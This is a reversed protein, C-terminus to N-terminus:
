TAVPLSREAEAAIPGAGLPSGRRARIFDGQAVAGSRPNRGTRRWARGRVAAFRPRHGAPAAGQGPAVPLTRKARLRGTRRRTRGHATRSRPRRGILRRGLTPPSRGADHGVEPQPRCTGDPGEEVPGRRAPGAIPDANVSDAPATGVGPFARDRTASAAGTEHHARVVRPTRLEPPPSPGTRCLGASAPDASAHLSADFAAQTAGRVRSAPPQRGCPSPRKPRARGANLGAGQRGINGASPPPPRASLDGRASGVSVSETDLYNRAPAPGARLDASASTAKRGPGGPDTPGLDSRARPGRQATLTSRQAM